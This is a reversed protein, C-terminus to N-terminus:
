RVVEIKNEERLREIIRRPLTNTGEFSAMAKAFEQDKVENTGQFTKTDMIELLRQKQTSISIQKMDASKAFEESGFSKEISKSSPFSKRGKSTDEVNELRELIKANIENMFEFQNEVGKAFTDIAKIVAKNQTQLVDQAKKIEDAQFHDEEKAIYVVNKKKGDRVVTKQLKSLDKAKEILADMEKVSSMGFDSITFSKEKEDEEESEDSDDNDEKEEDEETEDDEQEKTEKEEDEKKSPKKKKAKELDTEETEMGLLTKAKEIAENSIKTMSNSNNLKNLIQMIDILQSESSVTKAFMEKAQRKNYFEQKQANVEKNDGEVDEKKLASGSDTTLAKIIKIEYHQNVVIREGTEPNTIDVIYIEEGGNAERDDENYETGEETIGKQILDAFSYSNKPTPTIALGTIRSHTIRKENNPDKKLVKGEVSFGLRRNSNSKKLTEALKVVKKATDQDEYLEAEVWLCDKEATTGDPLEEGKKFIKSMTPEGVISDPNTKTQHQWNVFGYRNFFELDMGNPDLFEGDSDMDPTSAIGAVHFSKEFNDFKANPIFFKFDKM